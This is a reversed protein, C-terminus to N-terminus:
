SYCDNKTYTGIHHPPLYLTPLPSNQLSFTMHFVFRKLYNELETDWIDALITYSFLSPNVFTVSTHVFLLRVKVRRNRLVIKVKKTPRDPKPSLAVNSGQSQKSYFM